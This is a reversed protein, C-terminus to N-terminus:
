RGATCARHSVNRAQRGATCALPLYAYLGWEDAGIDYSPGIPRPLKDIDVLGVPGSNRAITNHLFISDGGKVQVAAFGAYSGSRNGAILNNTM